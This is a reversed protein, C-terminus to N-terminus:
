SGHNLQVSLLYELTNNSFNLFTDLQFNGFRDKAIIPKSADSPEGPGAKNVAKVRFEYTQGEKLGSVSAKTADGDLM